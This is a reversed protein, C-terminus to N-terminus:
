AMLYSKSSVTSKHTIKRLLNIYKQLTISDPGSHFNNIVYDVLKTSVWISGNLSVIGEVRVDVTSETSFEVTASCVSLKGMPIGRSM